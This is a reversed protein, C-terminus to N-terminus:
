AFLQAYVIPDVGSRDPIYWPCSAHSNAFAEAELQADLINKQLQLARSPAAMYERTIGSKEVVQRAVEQIIFPQHVAEDVNNLAYYAELANLLTTKGTSQAGVIYINRYAM